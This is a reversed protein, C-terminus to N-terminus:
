FRRLPRARRPASASQQTSQASSAALATGATERLAALKGLGARLIFNRIKTPPALFTEGPMPVDFSFDDNAIGGFNVKATRYGEVLGVLRGGPVEFVGGGSAGYGIPADTKMGRQVRSDQEDLELQSVIGSSASLSRGYPAGIVVVDDGVDVENEAAITVASLAEGEIELLALDEDPAKGEHVVRARLRYLRPREIVVAFTAPGKLGDRQVVHANTLVYSTKGEVAIVVGSAARAVKGGVTVEVRVSERLARQVVRSRETKAHAPSSAGFGLSLFILSAALWKWIQLQREERTSIQQVTSGRRKMEWTASTRGRGHQTTEQGQEGDHEAKEDAEQQRAQIVEERQRADLVTGSGPHDDEDVPDGRRQGPREERAGQEVGLPRAVQVGGLAGCRLDESFPEGPRLPALGEPHDRGTDRVIELIREVVKLQQELFEAFFTRRCAPGLQQEPEALIQPARGLPEAVEGAGPLFREVSRRAGDVEDIREIAQAFTQLRSREGAAGADFDDARAAELNAAVRERKAARHLVHGGVGELSELPAAFSSPEPQRSRPFLLDHLKEDLVISGADVLRQAGAEERGERGPM